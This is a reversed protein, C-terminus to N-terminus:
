KKSKIESVAARTSKNTDSVQTNLLIGKTAAGSTIPNYCACNAALVTFLAYHLYEDAYMTIQVHSTRSHCNRGNM